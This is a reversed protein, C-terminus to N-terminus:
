QAKAVGMMCRLIAEKDFDERCFEGTCEGEHLILIRDCIGVLEDIESSVVMLAGGNEVFRGMIKHIETKNGIDVGRTPEDLLLIQPRTELLRGLIVKQQNGGSLQSILQKQPDASVIRLNKMQRATKEAIIRANLFLREVVEKINIMVINKAVSLQAFIGEESRSETLFCIGFDIAQQPRRIRTAKGNLYITGAYLPNAGFVSRLLESRGAGMLGAIGLIEGRRVAFGINSFGPGSLNEGALAVEGMRATAKPYLDNINKGAILNCIQNSDLEKTERTAMVEGDKLVTIRDVLDIVENLRHSIFIVIYGKAKLMRVVRFLHVIENQTLSSTPEDMIIIRGDTSLERAIEVLQRVGMSVSAVQRGPDVDIDWEALMKKTEREIERRAVFKGFGGRRYRHIFVNEAVSLSPILSLEQHVIRIGRSYAEVPAGFDVTEGDIKITGCDPGYVGSIIKMLTSKGAGNEGVVGHIEGDYFTVSANKLARVGGFNKSVGSIELM